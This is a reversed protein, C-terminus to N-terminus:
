EKFLIKKSIIGDAFQIKAIYLGSSLNQRRLTFENNDINNHTNVLKGSLDYIHISEMPSNVGTRFQIEEVAPNPAVSLQVDSESLIDKVALPACAGGLNLAAFARPAFYGILTDIYAMAKAKSMDPNNIKSIVNFSCAPPPVPCSPHPIAGWFDEDWWEWPSSEFVTEGTLPNIGAPRLLPYLGDYGSNRENAATTFADDIGADIFVQNNGLDHVKKQVTFAGQVAVILDGTTPVILIDEMYPAFPDEPVQFSIMPPDTENLWSTDGLAGGFNVCLQVDSSFGVHNPLSLTDGNLPNIGLATGWVDGHVPELVFPLGTNSDIFKPIVVDIYADLTAAGLAIYGGTGQGMYAIREPCIGFQNGNEAVDRKFFRVVTRADQIGRYAANLLTNIRENIDPTIPNWGKRYEPVAVVYGMKALRTAMEVVVSDTRLGSTSGNTPNPLFNGTIFYIVLPRDTETDGVPTYVDMDLVQLTPKEIGPVAVTIVTINEGYVATQTEVEDFVQELYRQANTQGAFLCAILILFLNLNKM